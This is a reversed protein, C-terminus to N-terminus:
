LNIKSLKSLDVTNLAGRPKKHLKLKKSSIKRKESSKEPEEATELLGTVENLFHSINQEILAIKEKIEQNEEKIELIKAEYDEDLLAKKKSKTEIRKSSLEHHINKSNEERIRSRKLGKELNEQSEQANKLNKSLVLLENEQANKLNQEDLIMKRELEKQAAAVFIRLMLDQAINKVKCKMMKELNEIKKLVFVFSNKVRVQGVKSMKVTKSKWLIYSKFLRRKNFSKMANLLYRFSNQILLGAIQFSILAKSEDM